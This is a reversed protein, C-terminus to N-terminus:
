TGPTLSVQLCGLRVSGFPPQLEGSKSRRSRSQAQSGTLPLLLRKLQAAAASPHAGRPRRSRRRRCRMAAPHQQGEGEHREAVTPKAHTGSPRVRAAQAPVRERLPEDEARRRGRELDLARRRGAAPPGADPVGEDVGGTVCRM